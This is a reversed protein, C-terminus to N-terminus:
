LAQNILQISLIKVSYTDMVLITHNAMWVRVMLKLQIELFTHEITIATTKPCKSAQQKWKNQEKSFLGHVKEELASM